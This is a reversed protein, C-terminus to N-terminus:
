VSPSLAIDGMKTKRLGKHSLSMIPSLYSKDKGQQIQQVLVIGPRPHKSVKGLTMSVMLDPLALFALEGRENLCLNLDTRPLVQSFTRCLLIWLCEYDSESIPNGTL